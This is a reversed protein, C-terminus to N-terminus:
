KQWISIIKNPMFREHYLKELRILEESYYGLEEKMREKCRKKTSEDLYIKYAKLEPDSILIFLIFIQKFTGNGGILKNQKLLNFAVTNPNQYDPQTAIYTQALNIDRLYDEETYKEYSRVAIGKDLLEQTQNSKINTALQQKLIHTYYFIREFQLFDSDTMGFNQYMYTKIKALTQNNIDIGDHYEVEDVIVNLPLIFIGLEEAEKRTISCTSDCSIAIKGM